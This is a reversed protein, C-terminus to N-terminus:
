LGTSADIVRRQRVLLFAFLTAERLTKGHSDEWSLEAKIRDRIKRYARWEETREICHESRTNHVNFDAAKTREDFYNVNGEGDAKPLIM